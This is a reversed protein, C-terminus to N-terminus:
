RSFAEFAGPRGTPGFSESLSPGRQDLHIFAHLRLHLFKKSSEHLDTEDRAQFSPPHELREAAHCGNVDSQSVVVMAVVEIVYKGRRDTPLWLHLLAMDQDDLFRKDPENHEVGEEEHIRRGSQQSVDLPPPQAFVELRMAFFRDDEEDVM